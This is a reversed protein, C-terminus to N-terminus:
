NCLISDTFQWWLRIARPPLYNSITTAIIANPVTTIRITILQQKFLTTIIAISNCKLHLKGLYFTCGCVPYRQVQMDCMFLAQSWWRQQKWISSAGQVPTLYTIRPLWPVCLSSLVSRCNTYLVEFRQQSPFILLAPLKCWSTPTKLSSDLCKLLLMRSKCTRTAHGM